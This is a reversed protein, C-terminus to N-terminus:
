TIEELTKCVRMFEEQYKPNTYENERMFDIQDRIKPLIDPNNIIEPNAEITEKSMCCLLFNLKKKFVDTNQIKNECWNIIKTEAETIKEPKGEYLACMLQDFPLKAKNCEIKTITDIRWSTLESLLDETSSSYPFFTFTNGKITTGTMAETRSFDTQHLFVYYNDQGEMSNDDILEKKIRIIDFSATSHDIYKHGNHIIRNESSPSHWFNEYEFHNPSTIVLLRKM